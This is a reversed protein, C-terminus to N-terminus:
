SPVRSTFRGGAMAAAAIDDRSPQGAATLTEHPGTAVPAPPGDHVVARWVALGGGVVAVVVALALGGLMLQLRARSWPAADVVARRNRTRTRFM